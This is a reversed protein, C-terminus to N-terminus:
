LPCGIRSAGIAIEDLWVEYNRGDNGYLRTGVYLRTFSPMNRGTIRLDADEVGDVWVQVQSTASGDFLWELCVWRNTPFPDRAVPGADDDPGYYNSHLRQRYIGLQYLKGGGVISALELHRDAPLAAGAFYVYMRGYLTNSPAPFVTTTGLRAAMAMPTIKMRLSRTTGAAARDASITPIGELTWVGRDLQGSEFGECLSPRDGSCRSGSESPADRSAVADNSAADPRQPLIPSVSVGADNNHASGGTGGQMEAGQGAVPMPEDDDPPLTENGSPERTCAAVALLGCFVLRFRTPKTM